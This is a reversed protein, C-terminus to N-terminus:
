VPRIRRYRAKLLEAGGYAMLGVAVAGLLWPGYAAGQLASLAGSLDRTESPNRHLAAQLLFFGVTGFVVGRAALGARAARIAWSRAQPSLPSLDLRRDIESRYAKVIQQIGFAAIALAGLGVLWRGGPASMVRATWSDENNGGGASPSGLALRAATLALGVHIAGSLAYLVRRGAGDREPDLAAEVFRWVAYGLLGVALAGLMLKGGPRELIEVFVGRQDTVGGRGMSARAAIAGIILYVVGHAAYGLRALREVSPGAEQVAAEAKDTVADKAQRAEM